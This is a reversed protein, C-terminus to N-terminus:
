RRSRRAADGPAARCGAKLLVADRVARDHQRGALAGLIERMEAPEDVIDEAAADFAARHQHRQAAPHDAVNGPEGRRRQQAADIEHLDRRGQEGLDVARDAALGRDVGAGALVQEAGEVLRAQNEGIRRAKRCQRAAFHAGAIALDDFVPQDAIGLEEFPEFRSPWATQSRSGAASVRATMTLQRIFAAITAASSRSSPSRAKNFKPWVKPWASSASVPNPSRRRCPSATARPMTSAKSKATRRPRAEPCSACRTRRWRAAAPKGVSSAATPREPLAASRSNACIPLSLFTRSPAIM